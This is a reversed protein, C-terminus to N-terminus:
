SIVDAIVDFVPLVMALRPEAGLEDAQRGTFVLM